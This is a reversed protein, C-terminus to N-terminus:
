TPLVFKGNNEIINDMISILREERTDNHSFMKTYLECESEDYHWPFTAREYAAEINDLLEEGFTVGIEDPFSSCREEVEWVEGWSMKNFSMKNFNELWSVFIAGKACVKCNAQNVAEQPTAGPFGGELINRNDWFGGDEAKINKAAIRELVDRCIAVIKKNRPLLDFEEKNILKM